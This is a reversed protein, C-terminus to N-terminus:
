FNKNEIYIKKGRSGGCIGGFVDKVNGSVNKVVYFM